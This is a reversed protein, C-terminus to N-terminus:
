LPSALRSVCVQVQVASAHSDASIIFSHTFHKPSFYVRHSSNGQHVESLPFHQRPKRLTDPPETHDCTM